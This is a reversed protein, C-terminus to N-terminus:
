RANRKNITSSRSRARAPGASPLDVGELELDLPTNPIGHERLLNRIATRLLDSRNQYSGDEVLRQIAARDRSPLRFTVIEEDSGNAPM